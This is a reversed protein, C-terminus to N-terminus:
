DRWDTNNRQFSGDSTQFRQGRYERVEALETSGRCFINKEFVTFVNLSGRHALDPSQYNFCTGSDCQGRLKLSSSPAPIITIVHEKVDILRVAFLLYLIDSTQDSVANKGFSGM